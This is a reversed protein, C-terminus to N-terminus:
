NLSNSTNDVETKYTGDEQRAWKVGRVKKNEIDVATTDPENRTRKYGMYFESPYLARVGKEVCVPHKTPPKTMTGNWMAFEQYLRKRLVRNVDSNQVTQLLIVKEADTWMETEIFEARFVDFLCPNNGCDERNESM